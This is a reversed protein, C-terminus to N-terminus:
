LELVLRTTIRLKADADIAEGIMLTPLKDIGVYSCCLITLAKDYAYVMDCSPFLLYDHM